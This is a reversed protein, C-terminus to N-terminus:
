RLIVPIQLSESPLRNVQVPSDASRRQESAFRATKLIGVIRLLHRIAHAPICTKYPSSYDLIAASLLSFPHLVGPPIEKSSNELLAGRISLLFARARGTAYSRKQRTEPRAPFLNPSPRSRLALAGDKAVKLLNVRCASRGASRGSERIPWAM